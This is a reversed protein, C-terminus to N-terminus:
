RLLIPQQEEATPPGESNKSVDYYCITDFPQIQNSKRRSGSFITAPFRYKSTIFTNIPQM